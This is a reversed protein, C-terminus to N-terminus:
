VIMGLVEKRQVKWSINKINTNTNAEFYNISRGEKGRVHCMFKAPLVVTTSPSINDNENNCDPSETSCESNDCDDSSSIDHACQIEPM